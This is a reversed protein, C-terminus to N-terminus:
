FAVERLTIPPRGLAVDGQPMSLLHDVFSPTGLDQRLHLRAYEEVSLVVVAPKGRKTVMQPRGHQAADVVASFCNKADQLSWHPEPM